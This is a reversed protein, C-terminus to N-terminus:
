LVKNEQTHTKVQNIANLQQTLIQLQIERNLIIQKIIYQQNPANSLEGKLKEYNEDLTKLDTTFKRFLEPNSSKITNLENRKEEILSAYHIDKQAYDPNIDSINVKKDQIQYVYFGLGITILITAAISLWAYKKLKVQKPQNNLQLEIKQWILDSPELADFAAKNEKAYNELQKKM